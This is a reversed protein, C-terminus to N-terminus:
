RAADFQKQIFAVIRRRADFGHWPEPVPYCTISCLSPVLSGNWLTKM